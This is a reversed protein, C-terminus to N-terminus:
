MYFLHSYFSFYSLLYPSHSCLFSVTPFKRPNRKPKYIRSKSIFFGAFQFELLCSFHELIFGATELEFPSFLLLGVLGFVKLHYDSKEPWVDCSFGHDWSWGDWCFSYPSTWPYSSTPVKMQNGPQYHAAESWGSCCCLSHPLSYKEGKERQRSVQWLGWPSALSKSYGATILGGCSSKDISLIRLIAARMDTWCYQCHERESHWHFSLLSCPSRIRGPPLSATGGVGFIQGLYETTYTLFTGVSLLRGEYGRRQVLWM